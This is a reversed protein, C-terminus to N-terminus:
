TYSLFLIIYISSDTVYTYPDTAKLFIDLQRQNKERETIAAQFHTYLSAINVELQDLSHILDPLDQPQVGYRSMGTDINIAVRLRSGDKTTFSVIICVDGTLKM